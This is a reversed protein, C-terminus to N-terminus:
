NEAYQLERSDLQIHLISNTAWVLSPHPFDKWASFPAALIWLGKSFATSERVLFAQKERALYAFGRHKWKPDQSSFGAEGAM